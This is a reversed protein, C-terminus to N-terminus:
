PPSPSNSVTDVVSSLSGDFRITTNGDNVNWGQTAAKRVSYAPSAACDVSLVAAIEIRRSPQTASFRGHWQPKRTDRPPKTFQDTQSFIMSQTAHLDICLTTDGNHIEIRNDSARVIPNLAHINWEWRRPVASELSDFVLVTGPRLYVLSRIAKRLQGGYALTADGTTIDFKAQHSFQVIKGTAAKAHLTQGKGGDFTIANHALTQTYWEEWHPSHYADYYGSDIALARGRANIVFSNQDAHSHNYSGYPSSKFYISTRDRDQLDSHMAVGGISPFYAADALGPFVILGKKERPALLFDIRSADEGFFQRAYWRALPSPAARSYAKIYRAWYESPADEAGDGFTANPTGPPLFYALYRAYNRVWAKQSLDVGTTWRLINWNLVAEGTVWLSYATGNGFGGDEGGWPSIFHFYLPVSERFWSESQACDGALIASIAATRALVEDGHSNYPMKELGGPAALARVIDDQRRALVDILVIREGSTLAAYLFDYALALTQAIQGASEDESALGTAGEPDWRALNLVRRKADALFDQRKSITWALVASQAQKTEDHVDALIQGKSASKDPECPLANRMHNGVNEYLAAVGSRRENLLAGMWALREEDLPLARPHPRQRAREYLSRWDPVVFPVAHQSVTFRRPHGALTTKGDREIARVQWIYSGEALREPWLVWNHETQVTATKGDPGTLSFEYRAGPASHPWSFDPPTQEVMACDTPKVPAALPDAVVLWDTEAYPECASASTFLLLAGLVCVVQILPRKRCLADLFIM